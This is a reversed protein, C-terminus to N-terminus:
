KKKPKIQKKDLWDPRAIKYMLDQIDTARSMVYPGPRDARRKLPNPLTAAILASERQTLKQATKGFLREAAAEAGYIGKGMEAVNLYVEMIRKKGWILEIGATFWVEFGKRIWSRSPLLFVNKATQQTITSAGRLRRGRREEEFANKIEIFDFGNHEMFRNDESAIVAMVMNPSIKEIPTWKKYTKFEKNGAYEFSRVAMLPTYWVPVWKHLLIWLFSLSVFVLPMYLFLIKLYRLIRNKFMKHKSGSKRGRKNQMIPKLVIIKPM